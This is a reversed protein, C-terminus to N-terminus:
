APVDSRAQARETSRERWATPTEEADFSMARVAVARLSSGAHPDLLRCTTPRQSGCPADHGTCTGCADSGSTGPTALHLTVPRAQTLVASTM